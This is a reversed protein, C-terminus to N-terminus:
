ILNLYWEIIPDGALLGLVAGTCLFPGFPIETRLSRGQYLMIATGIVAGIISGVAITFLVLRSGLWVGFGAMLKVDGMGLAPRGYILPSILALALFFGGGILLGMSAVIMQGPNIIVASGHTLPYHSIPGILIGLLIFTYNLENPIIAKRFDIRSATICFLLFVTSVFFNIWHPDSSQLWWLGCGVFVLGSVFEGLPYMLPISSGCERCRGGLLVYSLLPINDYWVIGEGCDPCHSRGTVVSEDRPLRYVCVNLFSGVALGFLFLVVLLGYFPIM